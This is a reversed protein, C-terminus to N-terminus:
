EIHTPIWMTGDNVLQISNLKDLSDIETLTKEIRLSVQSPNDDEVKRVLINMFGNSTSVGLIEEVIKEDHIKISYGIKRLFNDDGIWINRIPNM